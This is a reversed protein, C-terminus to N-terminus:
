EGRLKRKRKMDRRGIGHAEFWHLEAFQVEDTRIIRIWTNGKRKRWQGNGYTASLYRRIRVGTGRAITEIDSIDSLLDFDEDQPVSNFDKCM